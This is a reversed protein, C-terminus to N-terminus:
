YSAIPMKHFYEGSALEKLIADAGDARSLQSGSNKGVYGVRYKGTHAGEVLRPYRIITWDLNSARIINVNAESDKLM